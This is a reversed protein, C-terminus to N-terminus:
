KGSSSSMEAMSEQQCRECQKLAFINLQYQSFVVLFDSCGVVHLIMKTIVESLCQMMM